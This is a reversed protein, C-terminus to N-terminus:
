GMQINTNWVDNPRVWTNEELFQAQVHEVISGKQKLLRLMFKKSQDNTTKSGLSNIIYFYQYKPIGYLIDTRIQNFTGGFGGFYCGLVEM